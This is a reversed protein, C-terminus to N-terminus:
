SYGYIHVKKDASSIEVRGGGPCSAEVTDKFEADTELEETRFKALVDAHFGCDNSGRVM